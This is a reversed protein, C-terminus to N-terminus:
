GISSRGRSATDGGSDGTIGQAAAHADWLIRCTEDADLEVYYRLTTEIREHRMLVQLIQPLVRKAWRTGFSRRLDHASAYKQLREGNTGRRNSQAVIVGAAQGIQTVVRSVSTPHPRSDRERQRPLDFVLGQRRDSPVQRLFEAFEPAMPLLRDRHGKESEAPVRFLPFPGDMDVRMGSLSDWTLGLSEDLRLGSLWLSRLYFEWGAARAPGVVSPIAGLMAAFEAETIPRGKMLRAKQGTKARKVVPFKPIEHLYGLDVAFRLAAHLHKAYSNITSEARGGARLEALWQAVRASTVGALTQPRMLTDVSDLITSAKNETAQALGSLSQRLYRVRFEAWPLSGDPRVVSSALEEEWRAAEREAERRVATGTSRTLEEGTQSNRCRMYWYKRGAKRLLLVRPATQRRRPCM